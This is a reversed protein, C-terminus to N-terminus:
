LEVLDLQVQCTLDSAFLIRGGDRDQQPPLYARGIM